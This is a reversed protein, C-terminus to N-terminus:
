KDRGKKRTWKVAERGNEKKFLKGDGEGDGEGREREEDEEM